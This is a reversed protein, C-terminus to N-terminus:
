NGDKRTSAIIQLVHCVSLAILTLLYTHMIYTDNIGTHQKTARNCSNQSSNLTQHQTDLRCAQSDTCNINLVKGM